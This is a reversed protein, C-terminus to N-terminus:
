IRPTGWGDKTKQWLQFNLHPWRTRAHRFREVAREFKGKVFRGKVEVLYFNNPPEIEFVVFDPTYRIFIPNGHKDVGSEWRLTMGEYHYSEIDGRMKMAELRAAFSSETKNMVGRRPTAVNVQVHMKGDIRPTSLPNADLFSKSARPFVESLSKM